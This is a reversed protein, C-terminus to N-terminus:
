PHLRLRGAKEYALWEAHSRCWSQAAERWWLPNWSGDNPAGEYVEQSSIDWGSAWARELFQWRVRPYHAPHAYLIVHQIERQESQATALLHDLGRSTTIYVFRKLLKEDPCLSEIILRNVRRAQFRGLPGKGKPMVRSETGLEGKEGRRLAALQLDPLGMSVERYWVRNGLLGNLHAALRQPDRLPETWDSHGLNKSQAGLANRLLTTREDDRILFALLKEPSPVDEPTFDPPRIVHATPCLHPFGAAEDADYGEWQVGDFTKAGPPLKEFDVRRREALQRNYCGPDGEPGMSFALLFTATDKAWKPNALIEDIRSNRPRIPLEASSENLDALM